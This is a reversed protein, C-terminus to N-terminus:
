YCVPGREISVISLAGASNQYALMFGATAGIVGAVVASQKAVGASRGAVVGRMRCINLNKPEIRAQGMGPILRSAAPVFDRLIIPFLSAHNFEM